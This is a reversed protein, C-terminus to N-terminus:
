PPKIEICLFSVEACNGAEQLLEPSHGQQKVAGQTHGSGSGGPRLALGAHAWGWPLPSSKSRMGAEQVLQTELNLGVAGTASVTPALGTM